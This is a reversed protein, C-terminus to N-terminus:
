PYRLGHGRPFLPGEFPAAGALVETVGARPLRPEGVWAILLRSAGM